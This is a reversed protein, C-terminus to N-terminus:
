GKAAQQLYAHLAEALPEVGEFFRLKPSLTGDPGVFQLDWLGVLRGLLNSELRLEEIASPDLDISGLQEKFPMALRWSIGRQM